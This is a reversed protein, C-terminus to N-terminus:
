VSWSVGRRRAVALAFAIAGLFLVIKLAMLASPGGYRLLGYFVTGSGWEHDIYKPLTPTFAFTDHRPVEGRLWVSAGVALKAWLDGDAVHYSSLVVGGTFVGVVITLLVYIRKIALSDPM